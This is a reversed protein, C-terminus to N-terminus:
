AMSWQWRPIGPTIPWTTPITQIMQSGYNPGFTWYSDHLDICEQSLHDSPWEGFGFARVVNSPPPGSQPQDGLPDGDTPENGPPGDDEPTQTPTPTPTPEEGSPTPTATPQPGTPTPTAPPATPTSTPTAAPTPTPATTPVTTPTAGPAVESGFVREESLNFRALPDAFTLRLRRATEGAAPESRWTNWPNNTLEHLAAFNDGTLQASYEVVLRDSGQHLNGIFYEVADLAYTAGLDLDAVMPYADPRWSLPNTWSTDPDHGTVGDVLREADRSNTVDATTIGRIGSPADVDETGTLAVESIHFRATSSAFSLEIFRTGTPLEIAESWRDYRPNELNGADVFSGPAGSSSALITLRASDPFPVQGVYFRASELEAGAAVVQATMPYYADNWQNGPNEWSSAETTGTQGDVLRSAQSSNEGDLAALGSLEAGPQASVVQTSVIAISTCLLAFAIFKATLRKM